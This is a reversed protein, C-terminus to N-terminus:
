LKRNGASIKRNLKMYCWRELPRITEYLASDNKCWCLNSAHLPKWGNEVSVKEPCFKSHTEKLFHLLLINFDLFMNYTEHEM